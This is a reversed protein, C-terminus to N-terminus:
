EIKFSPSKSYPNEVIPIGYEDKQVQKESVPERFGIPVGLDTRAFGIVKFHGGMKDIDMVQSLVKLFKEKEEKSPLSNLYHTVRPIIGCGQM